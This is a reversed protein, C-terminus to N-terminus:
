NNLQCYEMYAIVKSNRPSFTNFKGIQKNVILLPHLKKVEEKCNKMGAKDEEVQESPDQLFGPTQIEDAKQQGGSGPKDQSDKISQSVTRQGVPVKVDEPFKSVNIKGVGVQTKQESAQGSHM